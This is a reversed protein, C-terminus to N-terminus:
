RLRQQQQRKVSQVRSPKVSISRIDSHVYERLHELEREVFAVRVKRYRRAATVYIRGASGHTDVVIALPDQTRGLALPRFRAGGNATTQPRYLGARRRSAFERRRERREIAGEFWERLFRSPRGERGGLEWEGLIPIITLLSQPSLKVGKSYPLHTL